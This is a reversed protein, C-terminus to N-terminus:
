PAVVTIYPTVKSGANDRANRNLLFCSWEPFESRIGLLRGRSATASRASTTPKGAVVAKEVTIVM